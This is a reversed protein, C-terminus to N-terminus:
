CYMFCVHSIYLVVVNPLIKIIITCLNFINLIKMILIFFFQLRWFSATLILMWHFFPFVSPRSPSKGGTNTQRTGDAAPLTNVINSLSESSYEGGVTGRLQM